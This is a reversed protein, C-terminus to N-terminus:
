AETVVELLSGYIGNKGSKGKKKMKIKNEEILNITIRTCDATEIGTSEAVEGAKYKFEGKEEIFNLILEKKEEEPQEEPEGQIEKKEEETLFEEGPDEKIEEADEIDEVKEAEPIEEEDGGDTLTLPDNTKGDPLALQENGKGHIEEAKKNSNHRKESRPINSTVKQDALNKLAEDVCEELDLDGHINKTLEEFEKRFDTFAILHAAIFERINDNNMMTINWYTKLNEKTERKIKIKDANDEITLEIYAKAIKIESISGAKMNRDSLISEKVLGFIKENLM